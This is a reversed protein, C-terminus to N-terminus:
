KEWFLKTFATIDGQARVNEANTGLENNPYLLRMPHQTGQARTSLPVNPYGTRRFEAWSEFGNVNTNAIWKQTIIARIKDTSADWNVNAIPQNYYVAADAAPNPTGLYRFSEVIGKQYLDKADGSLYGRQVAEAQLFFGESALMIPQARKYQDTNQTLSTGVLRPLFAPGFASIKPATYTDNGEGFPVGRYQTRFAADEPLYALRRLRTTDSFSRLTTIYFDSYTYFDKNGSKTDAATFGYTEYFPNMKGATKLFGPDALVDEGAGLFGGSIKAIEGKIYAERGAVNTQRLLMRLKLTNAFRVWKKLDGKFVIDASGPSPNDAAVPKNLEVVAADLQKILDEYIAQAQDYKPRIVSTGKLAETYPINGYTDVLIQFNFAKMVKAIGVYAPLKLETARDEIYQYDNLNDYKSNWIGQGFDAAVTYTKETQFGSVSGTPSWQGSWFAGIQHHTQLSATALLANPLVLDPSASTPNNPDTNVDLYEKGCSALGLLGAVALVSFLSRKM